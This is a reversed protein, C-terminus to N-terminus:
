LRHLILTVCKGCGFFCIPLPLESAPPFRPGVILPRRRTPLGPFVIPYARPLRTTRGHVPSIISSGGYALSVTWHTVEFVQCLDSVNPSM